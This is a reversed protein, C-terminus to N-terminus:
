KVAFKSRARLAAGFHYLAFIGGVCGCTLSALLSVGKGVGLNAFLPHAFLIAGAALSSRCFDNAAFLSAAYQPYSLPVYLFICQLLVFVGITFIGIAICTCIWHIKPNATWGVSFDTCRGMRSLHPYPAHRFVIRSRGFWFLGIPVLVSSALAPLLRKEPAPLGERRLKPEVYWWLYSWYIVISIAGFLPIPLFSLGTEGVNFGYMVPYVLPFVEFFSYFIGYVLATYVSTFLVAPDLVTIQWPKWLYFIATDRASLAAQEIESQSKVRPNGTKARLRQARRLLINSASTEPLFCFMMILAPAGMWLLEWMSWHWNTKPVSFGSIIPGLAPGGTAFLAWLCLAYPLKVLSYMDGLSAGGTALCPSGFFGQLYRLVLLGAFNQVLAAPVTLIVFIVMTAVYPPNRGISPIESLPAWLMPGMGYALVYLSLGLTSATVSVGFQEVVGAESPAYIASGIYVALTYYCIIFQVFMKKRLSWNQPNEADDTDYFDVLITGDTLVDPHIAETPRKELTAAEYVEELERRTEVKRAENRTGVKSLRTRQTEIQGLELDKETAPTSEAISEPRHVDKQDIPPVESSHIESPQVASHEKKLPTVDSSDLKQDVAKEATTKDSNKVCFHYQSPLTFNPDEEPYPFLRNKTAWRICQGLPADRILASM